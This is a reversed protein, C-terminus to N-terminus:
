IVKVKLQGDFSRLIQGQSSRSSSNVKLHGQSLRSRKRKKFNFAMRFLFQFAVRVFFTFKMKIQYGGMIKDQLPFGM